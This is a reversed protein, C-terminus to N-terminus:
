TYVPITRQTRWYEHRLAPSDLGKFVEVIRHLDFRQRFSIAHLSMWFLVDRAIRSTDHSEDSDELFFTIGAGPKYPYGQPRDLVTVNTVGSPETRIAIQTSAIEITQESVGNRQMSGQKVADKLGPVDINKFEDVLSHLLQKARSM